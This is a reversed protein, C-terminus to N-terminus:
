RVALTDYIQDFGPQAKGRDEDPIQMYLILSRDELEVPYIQMTHAVKEGLLSLTFRKEKGTRTEGLLTREVDVVDGEVYDVVGGLEQKAGERMGAAIDVMLEDVVLPVWPKFQQVMAIANGSSEIEATYLEVGAENQMESKLKWNGPYDFELGNAAHHSPSGM